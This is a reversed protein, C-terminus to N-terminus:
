NATLYKKADEPPLREGNQYVGIFADSFGLNQMQKKLGNAEHPTFVPGALYRVMGNPLTETCLLEVMELTNLQLSSPNSSAMLQVLFATSGKPLIDQISWVRKSKVMSYKVQSGTSAPVAPPTQNVPLVDPTATEVNSDNDSDLSLSVNLRVGEIHEKYKVFANFIAKAMESQGRKSALYQEEQPNSLFGTEILIAPMSTQHLVLFGAQKVGRDHRKLGGVFENQVLQAIMSSQELFANVNLAMAIHWEPSNPDFGGYNEKFNDELEIVSNERKAVELNAESKHLGLVYTEAGYASRNSAANCHICIFLDAKNRNAIAARERLEVFVDTTRTFIVQVGPIHKKILEGLELSIALAVHKEKTGKPGICGADHGGHGADIVVKRIAYPQQAIALQCGAIVVLILTYIIRTKLQM